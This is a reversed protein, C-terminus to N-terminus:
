IQEPALNQALLSFLFLLPLKRQPKRFIKTYDYIRHSFYGSRVKNTSLFGIRSDVHTAKGPANRTSSAHPSPPRFIPLPNSLDKNREAAGINEKQSGEHIAEDEEYPQSQTQTAALGHFHYHPLSSPNRSSHISDANPHPKSASEHAETHKWSADKDNALLEQLM